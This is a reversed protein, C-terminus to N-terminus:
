ICFKLTVYTVKKCIKQEKKIGSFLTCFKFTAIIHPNGQATYILLLM